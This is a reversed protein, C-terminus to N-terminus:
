RMLDSRDVLRHDRALGEPEQECVIGARALGDHGAEQDLLKNGATVQLPTQHDTRAVEHLLPLVFEVAAESQGELDHRVVLVLRGASSVPESLIGKGNTPKVLETAVLIH